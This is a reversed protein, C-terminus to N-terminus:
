ARLRLLLGGLDTLRGPRPLGRPPARARGLLHAVQGLRVQHPTHRHQPPRATSAHELRVGFEKLQDKAPGPTENHRPGGRAPGLPRSPRSPAHAAQPRQVSRYMAMSAAAPAVQGPRLLELRLPPARVPHQRPVALVGLKKPLQSAPGRMDHIQEASRAAARLAHPSGAHRRRADVCRVLRVIGPTEPSLVESHRVRVKRRLQGRFQFPHPRHADARARWALRVRRHQRILAGGRGGRSDWQRGLQQSARAQREPQLIDEARVGAKHVLLHGDQATGHEAQWDIPAPPKPGGKRHMDVPQQGLSAGCEPVSAAQARPSPPQSQIRETPRHARRAALSIQERHLALGRRPACHRLVRLGHADVRAVHPPFAQRLANWGCHRLENRRLHRHMNRVRAVARGDDGEIIELEPRTPRPAEQRPPKSTGTVVRRLRARGQRSRWALLLAHLCLRRRLGAQLAVLPRPPGRRGLGSPLPPRRRRLVGRPALAGPSERLRLPSLEVVRVTSVESPAHELRARRPPKSRHM